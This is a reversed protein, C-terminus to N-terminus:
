GVEVSVAAYTGTAGEDLDTVDVEYDVTAQVRLFDSPQRRRVQRREPALVEIEDDYSMAMQVVYATERDQHALM